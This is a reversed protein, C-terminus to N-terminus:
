YIIVDDHKWRAWLPADDYRTRRRRPTVWRKAYRTIDAYIEDIEKERLYRAFSLPMARAWFERAMASMEDRLARIVDRQCWRRLSASLLLRPPMTMKIPMARCRLHRTTSPTTAWRLRTEASDDRNCRCRPVAHFLTAYCSTPSTSLCINRRRAHKDYCRLLLMIIPPMTAMLTYIFLYPPMMDHRTPMEARRMQKREHREAADDAAHRESEAAYEEVDKMASLYYCLTIDDREVHRLCMMAREEHWWRWRMVDDAEDDRMDIVFM